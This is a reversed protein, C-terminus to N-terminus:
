SRKKDEGREFDSRGSTQQKSRRAENAQGVEKM